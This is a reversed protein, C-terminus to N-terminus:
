EGIRERNLLAEAARVARSVRSKMASESIGTQEAAESLSYGLIKTLALAHRQNPELQTLIEGAALEDGPDPHYKDDSTVM